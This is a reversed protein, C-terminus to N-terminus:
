GERYAEIFHYSALVLATVILWAAALLKYWDNSWSLLAAGAILQATVQVLVVTGFLISNKDQPAVGPRPAQWKKRDAM